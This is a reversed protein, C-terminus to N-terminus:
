LHICLRNKVTDAEAAADGDIAHVVGHCFEGVSSCKNVVYNM